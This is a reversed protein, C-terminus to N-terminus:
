RFASDSVREADRQARLKTQVSKFFDWFADWTKPIDEIKYGAKVM